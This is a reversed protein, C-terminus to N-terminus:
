PGIPVDFRIGLTPANQNDVIVRCAGFTKGRRQARVTAVGTIHQAANVRQLSNVAPHRVDYYEVDAHWLVITERGRPHQAPNRGSSVSSDNRKRRETLIVHARFAEV